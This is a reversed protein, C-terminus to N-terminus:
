INKVSSLCWKIYSKFIFQIVGALKTLNKNYTKSKKVFKIFHLATPIEGVTKAKFFNM